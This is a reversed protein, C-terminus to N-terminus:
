REHFNLMLNPWGPSSGTLRHDNVTNNWHFGVSIQLRCVMSAGLKGNYIETIGNIEWHQEWWCTNKKERQKRKGMESWNKEWWKWRRVWTKKAWESGTIQSEKCDWLYRPAHTHYIGHPLPALVQAHLNRPKSLWSLTNKMFNFIQLM